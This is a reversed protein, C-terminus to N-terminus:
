LLLIELFLVKDRKSRVVRLLQKLEPQILFHIKRANWIKCM